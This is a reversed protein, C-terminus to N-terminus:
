NVVESITNLLDEPLESARVKEVCDARRLSEILSRSVAAKPVRLNSRSRRLHPRLATMSIITVRSRIGARSGRCLFRYHQWTSGRQQGVMGADRAESLALGSL